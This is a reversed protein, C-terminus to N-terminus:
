YSETRMSTWVLLTMLCLCQREFLCTYFHKLCRHACSTPADDNIWDPLFHTGSPYIYSPHLFHAATLSLTPQVPAHPLSQGVAFWVAPDFDTYSLIYLIPVLVAISFCFSCTVAWSEACSPCGFLLLNWPCYWPSQILALALSKVKLALSKLRLALSWFITRLIGRLLLFKSKNPHGLQASLQATM